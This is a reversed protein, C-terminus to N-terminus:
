NRKRKRPELAMGPSRPDVGSKRYTAYDTIIREICSRWYGHGGDYIFIKGPIAKAMSMVKRKAYSSHLWPHQAELSKNCEEAQMKGFTDFNVGNDHPSPLTFRVSAAGPSGCKNILFDGNPTYTITPMTTTLEGKEWLDTYRAKCSDHKKVYENFTLMAAGLDSCVCLTHTAYLVIDLSPLQSVHRLWSRDRTPHRVRETKVRRASGEGAAM